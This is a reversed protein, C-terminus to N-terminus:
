ALLRKPERCDVHNTCELGKGRVKARCDLLAHARIDLAQDSISRGPNTLGMSTDAIEEGLMAIDITKKDRTGKVLSRVHNPDRLQNGVSSGNHLQHPALMEANVRRGLLHIAVDTGHIITKREM